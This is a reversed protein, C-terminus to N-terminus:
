SPRRNVDAYTVVELWSLFLSKGWASLDLIGGSRIETRTSSEVGSWRRELMQDLILQRWYLREDTKDSDWDKRSDILAILTPYGIDDSENEGGPLAELGVPAILVCPLPPIDNGTDDIEEVILVQEDPLGTLNLNRIATQISEMFQMHRSLTSM